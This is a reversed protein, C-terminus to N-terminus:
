ESQVEKVAAMFQEFNRVTYTPHDLSQAHHHIAQQEKSLKNQRAKAEVLMKKGGDMLIVFDFEGPTRGTSQDMRGHLFLWGRSRCYDAIASHLDAEKDVGVTSPTVKGANMRAQHLLYQEKTFKM